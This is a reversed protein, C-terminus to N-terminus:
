GRVIVVAHTGDGRDEYRTRMTPPISQGQSLVIDSAGSAVRFSVVQAHTGDGMDRYRTQMTSPVSQGQTLVIDAM